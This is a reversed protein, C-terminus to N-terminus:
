KFINSLFRVFIECTLLHFQCFVHTLDIEEVTWLKETSSDFSGHHEVSEIERKPRCVKDRHNIAVEGTLSADKLQHQSDQAQWDIEKENEEEQEEAEEEQEEEEQQPGERQQQQQTSYTQELSRQIAM